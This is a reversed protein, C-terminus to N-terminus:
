SEEQDGGGSGRGQPLLRSCIGGVLVVVANFVQYPYTECTVPIRSASTGDFDRYLITDDRQGAVDVGLTHFGGRLLLGLLHLAYLADGILEANGRSVLQALSM